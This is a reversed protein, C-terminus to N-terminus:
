LTLIKKSELPETFVELVAADSTFQQNQASIKFEYKTTPELNTITTRTENGLEKNIYETDATFDAQHRKEIARYEM